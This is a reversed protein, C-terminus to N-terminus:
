SKYGRKRMTEILKHLRENEEILLSNEEKLKTIDVKLSENLKQLEEYKNIDINHTETTEKSNKEEQELDKELSQIISESDEEVNIERKEKKESELQQSLPSQKVYLPQSSTSIPISQSISASQLTLPQSTKQLSTTISPLSTPSSRKKPIEAATEITETIEKTITATRTRNLIENGHQPEKITRRKKDNPISKNQIQDLQIPITPQSSSIENQVNGGDRQSVSIAYTLKGALQKAMAQLEHQAEINNQNEYAKKAARILAPGIEKINNYSSIVKQQHMPDGVKRAVEQLHKALNLCAGGFDKCAEFFIEYPKTTSAILIKAYNACEKCSDIIKKFLQDDGVTILSTTYQSINKACLILRNKIEPDKYNIEIQKKLEELKKSEERIKNAYQFTKNRIEPDGTSEAVTEASDVLITCVTILTQIPKSTEKSIIINDGQLTLKQLTQLLTNAINSSKLAM